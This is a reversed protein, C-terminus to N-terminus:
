SLGLQRYRDVVLSAFKEKNEKSVFSKDLVELM